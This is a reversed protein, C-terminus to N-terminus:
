QVILIWKALSNFTINVTFYELRWLIWLFYEFSISIAVNLYLIWFNNGCWKFNHSKMKRFVFINEFNGCYDLSSNRTSFQNMWMSHANIVWQSRACHSIVCFMQRLFNMTVHKLTQYCMENKEARLYWISISCRNLLVLLLRWVIRSM